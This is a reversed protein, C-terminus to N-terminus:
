YYLTFNYHNLNDVQFFRNSRCLPLHAIKTPIDTDPNRDIVTVSYCWRNTYAGNDAYQADGSTREYLVCPYELKISEPPQFYVRGDPGVIERFIDDLEKRRQDYVM